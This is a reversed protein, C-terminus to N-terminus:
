LDGEKGRPKLPETPEISGKGKGGGLGIVRVFVTDREIRYGSEKSASGSGEVLMTAVPVDGPLARGAGGVSTEVLMAIADLAQRNKLEGKAAWPEGATGASGGPSHPSIMREVPIGDRAVVSTGAAVKAFYHSKTAAGVFESHLIVHTLTWPTKNVLTLGGGSGELVIGGQVDFSTEEQVIVPQWPHARVNRVAVGNRDVEITANDSFPVLLHVGDTPKAAALEISSPDGVYFAHLNTAAGRTSGGAVDVMEIRRVRGRFGTGLKGLGVLCVFLGLSLLPAVRLVSLPKGLRRARAFAIPGVFLAYAVVLLAALGLSPKSEMSPDLVARVNDDEYWRVGLGAPPAVLRLRRATAKRWLDYVVKGSKADVSPAWPNRRLLWVEGLGMPAFDGRDLAEDDKVLRGGAFTSRESGGGGTVRADDGVLQKLASTRLDEDRVVAVALSGGSAVWAVLADLERGGLRGLVDSPVTVLVAGSWGGAFDALIPDSTERAAQVSVVLPVPAVGVVPPPPPPAAPGGKPGGLRPPAIRPRLEEDDDFPSLNSPATAPMGSVPPTGPVEVLKSGLSRSPNIEVITAVEESLHTLGLPQQAVEGEGAASLIVTPTTGPTLWVPLRVRVVEGAGISVPVRVAPREGRVTGYSADISVEGRWAAGRANDLTVVAENWGLIWPTDRGQVHAVELGPVALALSPAFLVTAALALSALHGM